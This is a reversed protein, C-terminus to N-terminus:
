HLKRIENTPVWNEPASYIIIPTRPEVRLYLGLESAKNQPKQKRWSDYKNKIYVNELFLEIPKDQLIDVSSRTMIGIASSTSSLPVLIWPRLQCSLGDLFLNEPTRFETDLRDAWVSPYPTVPTWNLKAAIKPYNKSAYGGIIGLLIAIGYSLAVYIFLKEFKLDEFIKKAESVKSQGHLERLDSFILIIMVANVVISIVISRAIFQNSTEESRVFSNQVWSCLFGPALLLVFIVLGETSFNM